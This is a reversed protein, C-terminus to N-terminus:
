LAYTLQGELIDLERRANGEALINLPDFYNTQFLKGDRSKNIVQNLFDIRGRKFTDWPYWYKFEKYLNRRYQEYAGSNTGLISMDIEKVTKEPLTNPESSWATARIFNGAWTELVELSSSLESKKWGIMAYESLRENNTAGPTYVFDHFLIALEMELEMSRTSFPNVKYHEPMVRLQTLCYDVHELNHYHRGLTGYTEKLLAQFVAVNTLGSVLKESLIM